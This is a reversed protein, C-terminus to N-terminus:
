ILTKCAQKEQYITLKPGLLRAIETAYIRWMRGIKIGVIDGKELRREVTKRCCRLVQAVEDVTYCRSLLETQRIFDQRTQVQGMRDRQTTDPGTLGAGNRVEQFAKSAVADRARKKEQYAKANGGVRTKPIRRRWEDAEPGAVYQGADIKLVQVKVLAGMYSKIANRSISPALGAVDQAQFHGGTSLCYIVAKRLETM